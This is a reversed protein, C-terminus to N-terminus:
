CRWMAELACGQHSLRYTGQALATATDKNKVHEWFIFSGGPRLLKWVERMV